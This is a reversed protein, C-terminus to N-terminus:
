KNYIELLCKLATITKGTGTAMVFLGKQKNHKWNEFAQKQYERPGSEYPFSPKGFDISEITEGQKKIREIEFEVKNKAKEM